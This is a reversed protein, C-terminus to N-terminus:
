YKIGFSLSLRATRPRCMHYRNKPIYLMDGPHLEVCQSVNLEEDNAYIPGQCEDYVYWECIGDIQLIIVAEDDRHPDFSQSDVATSGYLHVDTDCKFYNSLDYCIQKIINNFAEFYEIRFCYGAQMLDLMSERCQDSNIIHRERGKIIIVGPTEELMRNVDNWDTLAMDIYKPFYQHNDIDQLTM